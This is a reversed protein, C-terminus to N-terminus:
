CRYSSIWEGKLEKIRQLRRPVGAVLKDITAQSIAAWGKQIVKMFGDPTRARHHRLQIMLQAWVHEICNIDWCQAPFSELIPLGLDDMATKSAKSVHQKAKDRIIAYDRNPRWKDLEPMFKKMLNIYHSGKFTIGSTPKSSGKTPSPPVFILKTKLGRGVMGYFHFRAILKGPVVQLREDARRWAMGTKGNGNTYLSCVKGDTFAWPTTSTPKEDSCFAVRDSRNSATLRKQMTVSAYVLPRRQIHWLQSITHRSIQVTGAKALSKSVEAANRKPTWARRIAKRQASTTKVPRGSRPKDHVNPRLSDSEAVWRDVARRGVKLAKMISSKTHGTRHLNIIEERVDM